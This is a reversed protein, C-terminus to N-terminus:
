WKLALHTEHLPSCRPDRRLTHPARSAEFRYMDAIRYNRLWSLSNRFGISIRARHCALIAPHVRDPRGGTRKQSKNKNELFHRPPSRHGHLRVTPNSPHGHFVAHDFWERRGLHSFAGIFITAFHSDNGVADRGIPVVQADRVLELYECIHVTRNDIRLLKITAGKYVDGGVAADNRGVRKREGSTDLVESDRSVGDRHAEPLGCVGAATDNDIHGGELRLPFAMDGKLDGVGSWKRGLDICIFTESLNEEELAILLTLSGVAIATALVLALRSDVGRPHSRSRHCSGLASRVIRGPPHLVIPERERTSLFPHRHALIRVWCGAFFQSGGATICIRTLLDEFSSAGSITDRSGIGESECKVGLSIGQEASCIRDSLFQVGIRDDSIDDVPVDVVAIDACRHAGETCEEPFWPIRLSIQQRDVLDEFLDIFRKFQAAAAGQHLTSKVGVQRQGPVCIHQATDLLPMGLKVQM